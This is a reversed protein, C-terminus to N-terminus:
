CGTGRLVVLVTRALITLDTKLSMDKWYENDHLAREAFSSDNRKSVQWMGSIGPRMSYYTNSPYLKQQCVMMPRPGVLSMEGMLVNWFQPLEDMSSKRLFIGGKIIRPDERLKQNREWEDRAKPNASLHRELVTEADHVMTRLKLLNFIKGNRGVRPQRYFPMVGQCVLMLAFVLTLPVVIPASLVVFCIDFLRKGVNRYASPYRLPVPMAPKASYGVNANAVEKSHITVTLGGICPM